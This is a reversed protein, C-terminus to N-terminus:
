GWKYCSSAVCSSWCSLMKTGKKFLIILTYLYVVSIHRIIYNIYNLHHHAHNRNCHTNDKTQFIWLHVKEIGKKYKSHFFKRLMKLLEFFAAIQFKLSFFCNSFLNHFVVFTEMSSYTIFILHMLINLYSTFRKVYIKKYTQYQNM